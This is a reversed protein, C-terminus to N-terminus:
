DKRWWAEWNNKCQLLRYRYRELDKGKKNYLGFAEASVSKRFKPPPQIKDPLEEIEDVEEESEESQDGDDSHEKEKKKNNEEDDDEGEEQDEDDSEEKPQKLRKAEKERLRTEKKQLYTQLVRLDNLEIREEM